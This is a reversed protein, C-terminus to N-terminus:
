TGGWHLFAFHGLSLIGCYGWVLDLALAALCLTLTKGITKVFSTSILGAGIESMSTVAVAFIILFLCFNTAFKRNHFKFSKM